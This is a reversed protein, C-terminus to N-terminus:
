WAYRPAIQNMTDRSLHGSAIRQRLDYVFRYGFKAEYEDFYEAIRAYEGYTFGSAESVWALAEILLGAESPDDVGAVLYGPRGWVDWNFGNHIRYMTEPSLTEARIRDHLKEVFDYGFKSYFEDFYTRMRSVEEQTERGEQAVYALANLFLSAENATSVTNTTFTM